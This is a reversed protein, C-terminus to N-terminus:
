WCAVSRGSVLGLCGLWAGGSVSYHRALFAGGVALAGTGSLTQVTAVRGGELGEYHPGFALAASLACFQPMGGMPLYEQHM